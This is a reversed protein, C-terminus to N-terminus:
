RPKERLSLLGVDIYQGGFTQRCHVSLHNKGPKLAKVFKDVDLERDTYATVWGQVAFILEGNLYVETDEDYHIRIRPRDLLEKNENWEFTRRLWIEGTLWDTRVVAGPTGRNGFGGQAPKWKADDFDPKTWNEAPKELTMKWTQAARESTPVLVVTEDTGPPDYLRKHLKAVREANLKLVARDYTMLGNVEGEVDTTQTYVAAALGRNVHGRLRRMLSEYAAQLEERTKYTRYGWNDKKQWLHDEIPLGLGGFEGLVVARKEEPVPMGPGPYIHVDHLDGTGRDTWGSPGDVLRTPDQEKTWKLIRDTEFQGWGENFPVWVVICPHNYLADIIARFERLYTQKSEPEREIDPQGANIHRDGNPMDQWVLLGLQDCHYYWRAPEVKVHKRVMNFGLKKTMELDYLLAADTPATYLGDPWWGQDLPGHQFLPQDNLFLRNFGDTDKKVEIKRMGFYSQIRDQNGGSEYVLELQYLKPSSPSWLALKDRPVRITQNGLSQNEFQWRAAAVDKGDLTIWAELTGKGEARGFALDASIRLESKDVDPTLTLRRIYNTPVFELWVTQWIGTVPTYWIGHPKEVQKGRPQFGKDSPDWVSVILEQNGDKELADTVDFTFPDFGGRHEGVEKGNVWVSAQWDVAGFHLLVRQNKPVAAEFTRRYWLRQAEGVRKGVGSLHSEVAFPVLIQGDWKEPQKEARPRIAYDWRGNLNTWDKRALQPRPYEPHVKLPNVDKAWRTLLPKDPQAHAAINSLLALLLTAFSVRM